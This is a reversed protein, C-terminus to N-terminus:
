VIERFSFNMSIIDAFDYSREYNGSSKVLYCNNADSSWNLYIAIPNRSKIIKNYETLTIKDFNGEFLRFTKGKKYSTQFGSDYEIINENFMPTVRFGAKPNWIEVANGFLINGIKFYTSEFLPTQAPIYIRLYRYNFATLEHWYHMYNDAVIQLTNSDYLEDRVLSTVAQDYPTTSFNDNSGQVNFAAFNFRNLFLDTISFTNGFGADFTVFKNGSADMTKYSRSPQIMMLNTLPFGAKAPSGTLTFSTDTASAPKFNFLVKM